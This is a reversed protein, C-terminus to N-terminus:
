RRVRVRRSSNQSYLDFLRESIAAAMPRCNPNNRYESWGEAIFEHISEGAYGSLIEGRQISSLGMFSSYLGQIVTDNHADTLRAIQHGLEHDVTAMPTDCGAPKWKSWVDARRVETFYRYDAGYQENISIGNFGAMIDEGCTHPSGIFLSQAITGDGPEFGRMDEAVQQRVFPMLEADTATPYHRRYANLYMQELNEAIHKNRAQLSGVFGLDIDPFMELTESVSNCIDQVTRNDLNGFDARRVYGSAIMAAAIQDGSSSPLQGPNGPNSVEVAIGSGAEGPTATGGLGLTFLEEIEDAKKLIRQSLELIGDRNVKLTNRGHQVIGLIEPEYVGLGEGVSSIRAQLIDSSELIGNASVCLRKALERMSAAGEASIAYRAM